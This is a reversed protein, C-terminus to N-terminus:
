RTGREAHSHGERGRLPVVRQPEGPAGAAAPAGRGALGLGEIRELLEDTKAERYALEDLALMLMVGARMPHDDEFGAKDAAEAFKDHFWDRRDAQTM